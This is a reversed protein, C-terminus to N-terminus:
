NSATQWSQALHELVANEWKGLDHSPILDLTDETVLLGTKEFAYIIAPDVGSQRMRKVMLHDIVEDPPFGDALSSIPKNHNGRDEFGNFQKSGCCDKFEKGSGCPCSANPSVRKPPVTM